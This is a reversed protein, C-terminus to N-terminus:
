VGDGGQKGVHEFWSMVSIGFLLVPLFCCPTVLQYFEEAPTLGPRPPIFPVHEFWSMGSVGMLLAPSFCRPTVLRYFEEAPTLGPQPPIFPPSYLCLSVVRDRNRAALVAAILCGMSHGWDQMMNVLRSNRYQSLPSSVPSYLCLSLVRHRNRAALVAGVLCGMSHGWDGALRSSNWYWLRPNSVPSYLCLSLVRHRNRAALVAAVLCGMSHEGDQTRGVLRSNRYQFLPNSVPSYLCLSVVRDRNRAALVAAILCGMSHGWDQMMNVLRSNRYQSLPSSVPSYLCVSVVRDRNRAALVAGVLCGMSHGVVHFTSINLPAIVTREIWSVHEEISYDCDRPKPSKGWGLLDVAVVRRGELFSKPLFPVATDTWFSSAACFGHLLLVAPKEKCEADLLPSTTSSSAAVTPKEGGVVSSRVVGGEVVSGGVTSGEVVSGGVASGGVASGGVASGGVASRGVLSGGVVTFHLAQREYADSCEEVGREEGFCGDGNCLRRKDVDRGEEEEEEEEERREGQARSQNAGPWKKLQRVGCGQELQKPGLSQVDLLLGGVDVEVGRRNCLRRKDVDRGEEEEEEEERREGQARSQNAGPWKKLQQVGCGQELQKPGLSQVDPLLGCWQLVRMTRWDLSFPLSVRATRLLGFNFSVRWKRFFLDPAISPPILSPM